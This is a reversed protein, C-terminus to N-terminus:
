EEDEFTFKARQTRVVNDKVVIRGRDKSDEGQWEVTGNITYGWPQLFHKIIYQLWEVYSYFKEAGNWELYLGEGDESMDETNVVWQCWLGPQGEPERNYNLIDNTRGQGFDATDGVYYGGQIGVPLGAAERVPDPMKSVMLANRGMRRTNSFKNIYNMHVPRMPPSIEFRGTFDTTYGM